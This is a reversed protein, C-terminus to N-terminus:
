LIHWAIAIDSLVRHSKVYIKSSPYARSLRLDRVAHAYDERPAFVHCQQLQHDLFSRFCSHHYLDHEICTNKLQASPEAHVKTRQGKAQRLKIDTYWHESRRKYSGLHDHKSKRKILDLSSALSVSFEGASLISLALSLRESDAFAIAGAVQRELAPATIECNLKQATLSLCFSLCCQVSCRLCDIVV